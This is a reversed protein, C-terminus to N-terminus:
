RGGGTADVCEHVPPGGPDAHRVVAPRHGRRLNIKVGGAPARVPEEETPPAPEAVAAEAQLAAAAPADADPAPARFRRMSADSATDAASAPLRSTAVAAASFLFILAILPLQRMCSTGAPPHLISTARGLMDAPHM